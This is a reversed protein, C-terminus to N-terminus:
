RDLLSSLLSNVSIEMNILRYLNSCVCFTFEVYYCYIDLFPSPIILYFGDKEGSPLSNFIRVSLFLPFDGLVLFNLPLFGRFFGIRSGSASVSKWPRHMSKSPQIKSRPVIADSLNVRVIFSIPCYRPAVYLSLQWGAMMNSVPYVKGSGYIGVM